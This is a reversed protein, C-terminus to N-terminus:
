GFMEKAVEYGHEYLATLKQPNKELREVGKVDTPRIVIIEGKKELDEIQDMLINYELNKRRLKKQLEPYKSYVFKPVWFGKPNKRYGYPRTLVVICKKYGQDIARQFPIADAIGGDLMKVGDVETMNCGFPLSCSAQCAINLRALSVREEIYVAEGTKCDTAVIECKTPNKAYTEFDFPYLEFPFKNFILGFDMINGTRLFTGLGIYNYKELYDIDMTKTRGRQKALFNLVNGAGASVGIAYPFNADKDLLYDLVGASFVGRMGGGELVLAYESFDTSKYDMTTKCRKFSM